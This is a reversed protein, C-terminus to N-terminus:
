RRNQGTLQAYRLDSRLDNLEPEHEVLDPAYGAKLARDLAALAKERDHALEHVVATNYLTEPSNSPTREVQAVEALAMATDGSKVLYVALSSRIETDKLNLGLKERALRIAHEYADHAQNRSADAWRYADGLNGWYLYNGPALAVAKRLASAAAAYEGQFYRATGLNNLTAVMTADLELARQWSSAADAYRGAAYYAPGLNKLIVVNDASLAQARLLADIAEGYRADRYYFVGLGTRPIWDGPALQVAHQFSEGAEKMQRQSLHLKGLAVFAQSSLPELALARQLETMAQEAQGNEALTKGLAVHAAALDDNANVAQRASASAKQLWARDGVSSYKLLYAEALAARLAANSPERAVASELLRIARDINEKRDYRQLYAQATRLTEASGAVAPAPSGAPRMRYASYGGAVLALLLGAVVAHRWRKAPPPGAVTAPQHFQVSSSHREFSRLHVALEGANAYRAEPAKRLCTHVIDALEEPVAPAVSRLSVPDARMVAELVAARSSGDFPRVGALMEYLVVGTSFIDSRTGAPEGAAQEPSMYPVTGMVVGAVTLVVASTHTTDLSSPEPISKALGFDLIKILGDDTLMINSPKVDRHVIRAAHAKALGDCFQVMYQVTEGAPLAKSTRLIDSLARGHILEMAIFHQDGESNIEYITVINPHNLASAAKAERVLRELRLPDATASDPLVKLAVERDLRTDVARWVVGMGGAGLKHLVLYGGIRSNPALAM